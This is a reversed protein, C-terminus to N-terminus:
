PQLALSKMLELRLNALYTNTDRLKYYYLLETLLSSDAIIWNTDNRTIGNEDLHYRDEMNILRICMLRGRPYPSYERTYGIANRAEKDIQVKM